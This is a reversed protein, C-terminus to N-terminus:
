PMSIAILLRGRPPVPTVQNCVREAQSGNWERRQADDETESEDPGHEPTPAENTEEHGCCYKDEVPRGDDVQDVAM